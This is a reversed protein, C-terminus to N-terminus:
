KLPQYILEIGTIGEDAFVSKTANMSSEEAFYWQIPAHESANIQRKAENVLEQKGSFWSKFEGTEKNVFQAYKGKADLLIGNKMGDYKVGNQLWVEGEKGTIQKQYQRSFNSMSENVKVWKGSLGHAEETKHHMSSVLNAAAELDSGEPNEKSAIKSIFEIKEKNNEGSEKFEEIVESLEREKSAMM